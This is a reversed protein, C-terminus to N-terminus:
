TATESCFALHGICLGDSVDEKSMSTTVLEPNLVVQAGQKAWRMSTAKHPFM